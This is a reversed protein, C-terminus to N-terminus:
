KLYRSFYNVKYKTWQKFGLLEHLYQLIQFNLEYSLSFVSLRFQM